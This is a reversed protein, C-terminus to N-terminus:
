ITRKNSYIIKGAEFVIMEEPQFEQWDADSIKKSAILYGSQNQDKELVVEILWNDSLLKIEKISPEHFHFFLKAEKDADHYCILHEGDSLLCNFYGNDSFEKFKGALWDFQEKDWDLIKRDEFCKILHCFVAESDTEGLPRNAGLPFKDLNKVTGKHCFTYERGWVERRFPHTNKFSISGVTSRRVHAMVVDSKYESYTEFFKSLISVDARIPEKVVLASVDPYLAIGWGHPNNKSQETLGRFSLSPHIPTNFNMGLLECM